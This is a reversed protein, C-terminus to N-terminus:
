VETMARDSSSADPAFGEGPAFFFRASVGLGAGRALFALSPAWGGALGAALRAGALAAFVGFAALAGTLGFSAAGRVRLAAGRAAAGFAGLAGL